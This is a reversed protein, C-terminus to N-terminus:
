DSRSSGEDVAPRPLAGTEFALAIARELWLLRQAPTATLAGELEARRHAEWGDRPPPDSRATM